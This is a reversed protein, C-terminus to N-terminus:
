EQEVTFHRFRMRFEGTFRRSDFQTTGVHGVGARKFQESQNVILERKLVYFKFNYDAVFSCPQLTRQGCRIM